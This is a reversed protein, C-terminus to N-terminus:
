KITYIFDNNELDLESDGYALTEYLKNIRNMKEIQYKVSEEELGWEVLKKYIDNEFIMASSLAFQLEMFNKHSLKITYTFNPEDIIDGFEKTYFNTYDELNAKAIEAFEEINKFDRRLMGFMYMKHDCKEHELFAEYLDEKIHITIIWENIIIKM